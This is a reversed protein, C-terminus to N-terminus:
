ATAEATFRECIKRRIAVANLFVAGTKGEYMHAARLRKCGKSSLISEAVEGGDSVWLATQVTPESQATSPECLQESEAHPPAPELRQESTVVRTSEITIACLHWADKEKMVTPDHTAEDM